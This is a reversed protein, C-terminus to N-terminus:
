EELQDEMKEDVLDKEKKKRARFKTGYDDAKADDFLERARSFIDAEEEDMHHTYDHQLSHFKNLWGPSSMDMENLADLGPQSFM